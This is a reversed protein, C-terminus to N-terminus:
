NLEKFVRVGCVYTKEETIICGCSFYYKDPVLMYGVDGNDYTLELKVKDKMQKYWAPSCSEIM